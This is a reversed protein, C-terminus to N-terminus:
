SYLGQEEGEHQVCLGDTRSCKRILKLLINFKCINSLFKRRCVLKYRHEKICLVVCVYFYFVNGLIFVFGRDCLELLWLCYTSRFTHGHPYVWLLLLVFFYLFMVYILLPYSFGSFCVFTMRWVSCSMPLILVCAIAWSLKRMKKIWKGRGSRFCKAWVYVGQIIVGRLDIFECRNHPYHLLKESLETTRRFMGIWSCTASYSHFNARDTYDVGASDRRVVPLCLFTEPTKIWQRSCCKSSFSTQFTPGWDFLSGLFSSTVPPQSFHIIILELM